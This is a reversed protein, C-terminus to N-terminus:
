LSQVRAATIAAVREGIIQVTLRTADTYTTTLRDGDTRLRAVEERTLEEEVVREYRLEGGAEESPPGLIGGVEGRSMGLRLGNSLRISASLTSVKTCMHSPGQFAKAEAITVTTVTRGLGGAPGSGIVAVVSKAEDVYCWCWEHEDCRYKGAEGWMQRVKAMKTFGPRIGLLSPAM